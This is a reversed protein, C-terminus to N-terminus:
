ADYIHRNSSHCVFICLSFLNHSDGVDNRDSSILLLCKSKNLLLYDGLTSHNNQTLQLILEKNITLTELMIEPAIARIDLTKLEKCSELFVLNISFLNDSENRKLFHNPLKCCLTFLKITEM